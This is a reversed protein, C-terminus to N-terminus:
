KFLFLTAYGAAAYSVTYIVWNRQARSPMRLWHPLRLLRSHELAAAGRQADALAAHVTLGSASFAPPFLGVARQARQLLPTLTPAARHGDVAGHVAAAAAAAPQAPPPPPQALQQPQQANADTGGERWGGGALVRQLHRLGLLQSVAHALMPQDQAAPVLEGDQLSLTRQV